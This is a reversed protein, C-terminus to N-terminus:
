RHNGQIALHARFLLVLGLVQVCVGAFMFVGFMTAQLMAIAGAVIIWGALLLMLGALKM